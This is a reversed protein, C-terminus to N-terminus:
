KKSNNNNNNTISPHKTWVNDDKMENKKNLFNSEFFCFLGEMPFIHTEIARTHEIAMIMITDFYYIMISVLIDMDMDVM